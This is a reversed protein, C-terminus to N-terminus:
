GLFPEGCRVGSSYLFLALLSGFVIHALLEFPQNAV